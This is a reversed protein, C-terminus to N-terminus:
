ATISCNLWASSDVSKIDNRMFARFFTLNNQFASVTNTVAEQGEGTTYVVTAETSAAISFQQRDFNTIAEELDGIIIPMKTKNNAAATSAMVSNPVQVVPVVIGGLSIAPTGGSRPDYFFYDRNASDQLNCLYAYGDDNVYIKATPTYAGGLTKILAARLSPIGGSLATEAKATIASLVLSNITDERCWAMHKTIEGRLNEVTDSFLDNTVQIIGGYDKISYSIQEYEPVGSLPIAAGENVQQFAATTNRKRFVRSGTKTKVKETRIYPEFSFRNTKYERIATSIDQPVLYGATASTGETLITAKYADNADDNKFKRRLAKTWLDLQTPENEQAGSVLKKGAPETKKELMQEAEFLERETEYAEKLEHMKAIKEKAKATEGNNHLIRAEGTLKTIKESLEFMKKNCEIKM